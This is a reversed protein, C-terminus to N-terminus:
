PRPALWEVALSLTARFAVRGTEDRVSAVFDRRDGDPLADRALDPLAMVAENAAAELGPLEVGVDDRVHHDGNSTDFYYRPM